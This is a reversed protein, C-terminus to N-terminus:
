FSIKKHRIFVSQVLGILFLYAALSSGGYSSFPLPIGTVPALGLNMGVNVLVQFLFMSATGFCILMGFNDRALNGINIIKTILYAYLGVLVFSGLFGFSEAIGAFIFDTHPKPLFRLQSQSGRGLGKGLLGGSGVTIQAQRVNYGKGYPDLNPDIFTLIRNRQYDHVFKNFPKIDFTALLLMGVFSILTIFIILYQIKTPKSFLLLVFYIFCLVLATGLDPEKLVLLLPPLLIFASIFIDRWRLKGIRKSFFASFAFILFVKALESPQLQFFGLNIWRMAGGAAKGFFDVYLLLLIGIIYFIWIIGRFMRYDIFSVVGMIVLGVLAFLGQRFALNSDPTNFVLSYIVAISIALIMIPIIPLVIDFTKIKLPM